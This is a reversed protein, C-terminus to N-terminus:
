TDRGSETTAGSHTIERCVPHKRCRMASGTVTSASSARCASELVTDRTRILGQPRGPPPAARAVLAPHPTGNKEPVTVAGRAVIPATRGRGGSRSQGATPGGSTERHPIHPVRLGETRGVGRTGRSRPNRRPRLPGPRRIPPAPAWCHTYVRCTRSVQADKEDPGPARELPRHWPDGHRATKPLRACRVPSATARWKCRHTAGLYPRCSEYM